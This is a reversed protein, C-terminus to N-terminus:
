RTIGQTVTVSGSALVREYTDAKMVIDFVYDLPRMYSMVAERYNMMLINDNVLLGGDASSGRLVVTHDPPLHRVEMEFDIGGLDIPETAEEDLYFAFGDIWDENTGTVATVEIRPLILINTTM